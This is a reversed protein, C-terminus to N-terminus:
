RVAADSGTPQAAGEQVTGAPSAAPTPPPAPRAGALEANAIWSDVADLEGNVEVVDHEFRERLSDILKPLADRDDSKVGAAIRTPVDKLIQRADEIKTIANRYTAKAADATAADARVTNGRKSLEEARHALEDFQEGYLQAVQRAEEQLRPTDNARACGSATPLLALSLLVLVARLHSVARNDCFRAREDFPRPTTAGPAATAM